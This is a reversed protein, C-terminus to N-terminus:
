PVRAPRRFLATIESRPHDTGRVRLAWEDTRLFVPELGMFLDRVEDESFYHTAIGNGRVFTGPETEQGSGCRFDRTSFDCFWILGGPRLLRMLERIIARRGSGTSHGLVHCATIVDFVGDRFPTHLADAVAIEPVPEPYVKERALRAARPSFDVAVVSLHQRTLASLTKGNGCGLELVTTGLPFEPISRPAGGFLDGKTRYDADWADGRDGCDM